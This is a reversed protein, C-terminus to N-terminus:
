PQPLPQGPIAVANGRLILAHLKGREKLARMGAADLLLLREQPTRKDAELKRADARDKRAKVNEPFNRRTHM